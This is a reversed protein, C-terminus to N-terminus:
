SSELVHAVASSTRELVCALVGTVNAVAFSVGNLNHDPSVGDIPRAYGSAYCIGGDIRVTDRPCSADLVVCMTGNLVGPLSPMGQAGRPAVVTAGAAAARAVAAELLSAHEPRTMGLSLNILQVGLATACDIARILAGATTSLRDHFIRIIHLEADPAKEQIAATVATGHGLRDVVDDHERGDPDIAILRRIRELRIHPHRPHLGSDIVAISVGRGTRGAVQPHQPGLLASRLEARVM